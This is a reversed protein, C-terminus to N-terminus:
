AFVTLLATDLERDNLYNKLDPEVTCKCQTVQLKKHYLDLEYKLPRSETWVFRFAILPAM